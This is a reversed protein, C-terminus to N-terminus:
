HITLSRKRAPRGQQPTGKLSTGLIEKALTPSECASRADPGGGSVRPRPIGANGDRRTHPHGRSDPRGAARPPGDREVPEARGALATRRAASPSRRENDKYAGERAPAARRPRIPRAQANRKGAS